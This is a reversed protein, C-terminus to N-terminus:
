TGGPTSVRVAPRQAPPQVVVPTPTTFPAGAKAVPILLLRGTQRAMRMQRVTLESEPQQPSVLWNPFRAEYERAVGNVTLTGRSGEAMPVSRGDDATVYLLHPELTSPQLSEESRLSAGRAQPPGNPGPEVPFFFRDRPALRRDNAPALAQPVRIEVVQEQVEPIYHLPDLAITGEPTVDLDYRLRAVTDAMAPGEGLLPRQLFPELMSRIAHVETWQHHGPSLWVTQGNVNVLAGPWGDPGRAMIQYLPLEGRGVPRGALLKVAVVPEVQGPKTPVVLPGMSVPFTQNPVDTMVVYGWQGPVYTVTLDRGFTNAITGAPLQVVSGAEWRFFPTGGPTPSVLRPSGDHAIAMSAEQVWVGNSMRSGPPLPYRPGYVTVGGEVVGGEESIPVAAVRGDALEVAQAVEM